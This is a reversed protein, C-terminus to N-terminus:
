APTIVKKVGLPLVAPPCGTLASAINVVPVLVRLMVSSFKSALGLLTMWARLSRSNVSLIGAAEPVRDELELKSRVIAAM